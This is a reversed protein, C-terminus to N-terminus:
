SACAINDPGACLSYREQLCSSCIRSFGGVVGGGFAIIFPQKMCDYRAISEILKFAARASKSREGAPVELVKVSFGSKKLGAILKKGHFKNIAPNTIIIADKGISLRKLHVGLKPLINNGIIIKYPNSKLPVPISKM